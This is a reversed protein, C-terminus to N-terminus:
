HVRAHKAPKTFDCEDLAESLDAMTANVPPWFLQSIRDAIWASLKFISKRKQEDFTALRHQAYCRFENSMSRVNENAQSAQTEERRSIVYTRDAVAKKREYDFEVLAKAFCYHIAAFQVKLSYVNLKLRQLESTLMQDCKLNAFDKTSVRESGRLIPRDMHFDLDSALQDYTDAWSKLAEDYATFILKDAAIQMQSFKNEPDDKRNIDLAASLYLRTAYYRASMAHSAKQYTATALSSRETANTLLTSNRWSVYQFFQGVLTTGIVTLISILIPLGVSYFISFAKKGRLQAGISELDATRVTYRRDGDISVSVHAPEAGVAPESAIAIVGKHNEDAM